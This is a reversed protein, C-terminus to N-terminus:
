GTPPTAALALNWQNAVIALATLPPDTLALLDGAPHAVGRDEVVAICPNGDLCSPFRVAAAGRDFLEGAITQTLVRSQTTIERLDLDKL